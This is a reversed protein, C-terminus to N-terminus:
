HSTSSSLCNYYFLICSASHFPLAQVLFTLALVNGIWCHPSGHHLRPAIQAGDPTLGPAGRDWWGHNYIQAVTIDIHAVREPGRHACDPPRRRDRGYHLGVWRPRVFEGHTACKGDNASFMRSLTPRRPHLGDGGFFV